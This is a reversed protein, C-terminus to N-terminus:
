LWDPRIKEFNENPFVKTIVIYLEQEKRSAFQM